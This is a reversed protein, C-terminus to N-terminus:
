SATVYGDHTAIGFCLKEPLKEAEERWPIPVVQPDHLWPEQALYSAMFLRVDEPSRCMPGATSRVAEQGVFTNTVNQYSVRGHTPKLGYVSCFAAPIRISGGGDSGLAIPILGAAVAYASGSSSGGTYYGANYPNPLLPHNPNSGPTDLGFEVMHLKGLLLCGAEELKRAPWSTASGDELTEGTYDNVSGLGTAYEDLAYEDKVATPVGDLPGRHSKTQYRLTSAAAARLVLDDKTDFWAHAHAGSRTGDRRILPLLATAVETPTLEGSLYLAHYDAISYYRSAPYKAASPTTTTAADGAPPPTEPAEPEEPEEKEAPPEPLPVVTPDYLPEYAEIFSRIKRLSGFGANHWVIERVFRLWEM